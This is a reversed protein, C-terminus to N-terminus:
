MKSDEPTGVLAGTKKQNLNYNLLKVQGGTDTMNHEDAMTSRQSPIKKVTKIM